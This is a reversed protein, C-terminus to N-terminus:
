SPGAAGADLARRVRGAFARREAILAALEPEAAAALEALLTDAAPDLLEDYELLVEEVAADTPAELLATVAAVLAQHARYDARLQPLAAVRQAVGDAILPKGTHRALAVWETLRADVAPDLLAPEAELLAALDAGSQARLLAYALEDTPDPPAPTPAAALGHLEVLLDAARSFAAGAEDEDQGFAAHALERLIAVSQAERLLPHAALAAQLAAPSEAALLEQIAVVIPPLEEDAAGSGALREAVIVQAIGALGAEAQVDGLYPRRAQTPLAGILSWLLTQGAERWESKPMNPPVALLVREAAADHYLLTAPVAGGQGCSPCRVQHLTEDLIQGVLDPREHGDIIIWTEASFPTHCRPCDLQLTEAFSLM